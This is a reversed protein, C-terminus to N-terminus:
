DRPSHSHPIAGDPPMPPVYRDPGGHRIWGRYVPVMAALAMLCFVIMWPYIMRYNSGTWDMFAGSLYNGVIMGGCAFVNLGASFQAFKESPFLKMTLVASGLGWAVGPLVGILAFVLWANRDHILFYSLAMVLTMGVLGAMVIRLPNFKDCLIGMPLYLVASALVPWASVHGIDEMSLALTHRAFLMVFPAACGVGITILVYVLFFDRYMPIALCERFYQLFSKLVGPRAERSLPPYAGERVQWCMLLFIVLYALGVGLFMAQRHTIAHPFVWWLFAFSALCTMIRFWALFRGMLEQPVVDRLLWNYANVLVMNWLHFSVVFFSLLGMTLTAPAVPLWAGLRGHVWGGIEPAFGVAILSGVTCPVSWLLFPIRRGWRGRHSDSAMSINPLFFINVLGAISGTMIGILANSANLDKLYIPIFRAFISEFFTFAFDGGLLWLFLVALQRRNYRLSGITYIKGGTKVIPDKGPSGRSEDTTPTPIDTM